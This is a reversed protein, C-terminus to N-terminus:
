RASRLASAFWSLAPAQPEPPPWGNVVALLESYRERRPDNATEVRGLVHTRRGTGVVAEVLQGAAPSAPDVGAALAPRAHELVKAVVDPRLGAAEGAHQEAIRRMRTRFGPDQSLEALEVWADLQEPTPDDPLEPTLTRRIGDFADLGGFVAALFDDVLRQRETASLKALRHVLDLEKQTPGREAALRLVTRRLRLTRIQATLAEAHAAAVEQLSVERDVVARITALDLGLDRLTRVLELRALAAADYRRYGGPGRDTPPVIGRDSYFRITKVPLGTRQALEGISYLTDGNM